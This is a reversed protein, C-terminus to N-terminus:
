FLTTVYTTKFFGLVCPIGDNQTMNTKDVSYIRQDAYCFYIHSGGRHTSQLFKECLVQTEIRMEKWWVDDTRNAANFMWKVLSAM